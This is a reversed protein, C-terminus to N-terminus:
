TENADESESCHIRKTAIDLGEFTTSVILHIAYANCAADSQVIYLHDERRAFPVKSTLKDM